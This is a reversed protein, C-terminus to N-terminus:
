IQLERRKVTVSQMAVLKIYKRNSGMQVSARGDRQMYKKQIRIVRAAKGVPPCGQPFM